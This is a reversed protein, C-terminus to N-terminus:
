SLEGLKILVLDLIHMTTRFVSFRPNASGEWASHRAYALIMASTGEVAKM